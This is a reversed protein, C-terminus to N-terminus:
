PNRSGTYYWMRYIAFQCIAFERLDDVSGHFDELDPTGAVCVAYRPGPGRDFPDDTAFPLTGWCGKFDTDFLSAMQDTNVNYVDGGERSTALVHSDDAWVVHRVPAGRTKATRLIEGNQFDVFQLSGDSHGSVVYRGLPHTALATVDSAAAFERAKKLSKLNTDLLWQTCVGGGHTFMETTDRADASRFQSIVTSGVVEAYMQHSDVDWVRLTGDVSAIVISTRIFEVDLLDVDQSM